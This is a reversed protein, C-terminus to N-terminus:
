APIEEGTELNATIRKSCAVHESPWATFRESTDRAGTHAGDCTMRWAFRANLRWWAPMKVSLLLLRGRLAFSYYGIERKLREDSYRSTTAALHAKAAGEIDFNRRL